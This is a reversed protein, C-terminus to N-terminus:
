DVKIKGLTPTIVFRYQYMHIYLDRTVKVDQICYDTVEAVRGEKWWIPADAGHGSKKAGLTSEAIAGLQLEGKPAKLSLNQVAKRVIMLLDVDKDPSSNITLGSGRLVTYDFRTHNFGVVRDASNIREELNKLNHKDYIRFSSTLFDWVVAVSVRCEHIYDWGGVEEIPKDIELDFVITNTNEV